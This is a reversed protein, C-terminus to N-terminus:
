GHCPASIVTFHDYHM